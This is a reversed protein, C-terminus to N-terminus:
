VSRYTQNGLRVPIKETEDTRNSVAGVQRFTHLYSHFQSYGTPQTSRFDVLLGMNFYSERPEMVGFIRLYSHFGVSRDMREVIALGGIEGRGIKWAEM